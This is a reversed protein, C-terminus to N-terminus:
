APARGLLWNFGLYNLWSTPAPRIAQKEYRINYRHASDERTRRRGTRARKRPEIGPVEDTPAFVVRAANEASSISRSKM